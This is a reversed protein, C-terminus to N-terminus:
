SVGMNGGAVGAPVDNTATAGTLQASDAPDAPLVVEFTAGASPTSRALVEGGHGHAIARALALGLGTGRPRGSGTRFRDFIYALESQPIGSGSDAVIVRVSGRIRRVALRIVDGSRTHQIANELLADVALGLRERDASVTVPDLRGLQWRREATPRWRRLVEMIFGDLAVPELRLFDSNESTAILLLREALSKLRTLEGVVVHVDRSHQPDTLSGALLEAHGLAITIPTKLQHSADQLFRRQAALLRANEESVRARETDAAQRRHAYRMVLAFMLLLLTIWVFHFPVAQWRAYIAICALGLLVLSVWAADLADPRGRWGGPQGLRRLM